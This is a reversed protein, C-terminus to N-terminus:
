VLAPTYPLALGLFFIVLSNDDGVRLENEFIKLKNAEFNMM